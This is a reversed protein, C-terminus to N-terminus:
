RPAKPFELTRFVKKNPDQWMYAGISRYADQYLESNTDDVFLLACIRRIYKRPADDGQKDEENSMRTGELCRHLYHMFRDNGSAYDYIEEFGSGNRIRSWLSPDIYAMVIFTPLLANQAFYLPYDGTGSREFSHIYKQGERLRRCIRNLDRMTFVSKAIYDNATKAYYYSDSAGYGMTDLYKLKDVPTLEFRMDYFRELYKKGDFQNGYAGAIANALQISDVSYVLIVNDNAFLRKTQELLRISFLPNCRDLEDIFLIMKSAYKPLVSEILEDFKSRLEKREKFQDLLDKGKLTNLANSFGTQGIGMAGLSAIGSIMDIITVAKDSFSATDTKTDFDYQSAMDALLPCLPDGYHDNEWANFYFPLYPEPQKDLINGGPLADFTETDPDKLFSNRSKLVAEVSKVFFTKGEGWPADLFISYSGEISQILNIFRAVDSNRGVSDNRLTELILEDSPDQDIRRMLIREPDTPNPPPTTDCRDKKGFRRWSFGKVFLVNTKNYVICHIM